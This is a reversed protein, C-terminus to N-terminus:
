KEGGMLKGKLSAFGSEDLEKTNLRKCTELYERGEESSELEEVISNKIALLFVDSELDLAQYYSINLYDIVRKISKM